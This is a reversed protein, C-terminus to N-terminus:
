PEPNLTIKLIDPMTFRPLFVSQPIRCRCCQPKRCRLNGCREMFIYIYIYTGHLDGFVMRIRTAPVWNWLLFYAYITSPFSTGKWLPQTWFLGGDEAVKGLPSNLLFVLGKEGVVGGEGPLALGVGLYRLKGCAAWCRSSLSKKMSRWPM